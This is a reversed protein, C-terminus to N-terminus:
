GGDGDELEVFNQVSGDYCPYVRGMGEEARERCLDM